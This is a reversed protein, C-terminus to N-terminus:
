AKAAECSVCCIFVLNESGTNKFTHNEGTPVYVFDAPSLPKTGQPGTVEGSGSLIYIQHEWPHDHPTVVGGPTITVRRMYFDAPQDKDILWQIQSGEAGPIPAPEGVVEDSKRHIM